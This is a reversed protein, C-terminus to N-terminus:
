DRAARLSPAPWRGRILGLGLVFGLVGLALLASLVFWASTSAGFASAFLAVLAWFLTWLASAALAVIGLLLSGRRRRDSLAEVPRIEPTM